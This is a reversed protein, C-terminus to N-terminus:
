EEDTHFMSRYKGPTLGKAKKFARIFSQVNSYGVQEGVENVLIDTDRLLISAKEIRTETLIDYFTKQTMQRLIRNISPPTYLLATSLEALGIDQNYNEAIYTLIRKCM